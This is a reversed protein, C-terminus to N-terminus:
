FVDPVKEKGNRSGIGRWVQMDVTDLVFRVSGDCMSLNVGGSHRSSATTMIRGPPYMCSLGNPTNIHYYATTSHYARIWPNGVDSVGQKSTNCLDLAEQPTLPKGGPRFTDSEETVISASGDGMNRESFAATHSTGDRVHQPGIKSGRYMPGDQTKGALDPHKTLDFPPFDWMMLTGHNAYYSNPAGISKVLNEDSDSPCIFMDVRTMRAEDNSPDDYEAKPNVLDHLNVQEVYPLLRALVSLENGSNMKQTGDPNLVPLGTSPDVEPVLVETPPYFKTASEYNLMAITVQKVNNLCQTRRGAERAAQVAPLLLSVLVGIIAIVVLLEVLTFGNTCRKM